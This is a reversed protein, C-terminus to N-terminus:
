IHRSSKLNVGGDWINLLLDVGVFLIKRERDQLGVEEEGVERRVMWIDLLPIKLITM